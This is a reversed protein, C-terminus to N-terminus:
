LAGVESGFKKSCFVEFRKAGAEGRFQPLNKFSKMSRATKQGGSKGWQAFDGRESHLKVHCAECLMLLNKPADTGGECVMQLHHIHVAPCGCGAHSCKIIAGTDADTLYQKRQKPTFSKRQTM